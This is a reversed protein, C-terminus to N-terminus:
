AAGGVIDVVGDAVLIVAIETHQGATSAAGNRTIAAPTSDNASVTAVGAAAQRIIWHRGVAASQGAALTLTVASGSTCRIYDPYCNTGDLTVAATADTVIVLDKGFRADNGEAFQGASTGFAGAEVVGATGTKLPLGSTTGVKGDNTLNGHTHSTPTRADSLRADDGACVTGATSGTNKTAADGLGSVNAAPVSGTAITGITTISTSGAWTSLATNEVNDLAVHTKLTSANVGLAITGSSTIPSGSDVEIGDSGSVAVSTVTGAGAPTDRILSGDTDIGTVFQGASGTNRKVGGITTTTPAPLTYNNASAEIGDLKSAFASTMLGDQSATADRLKDDGGTVHSSAHPTDYDTGAVAQAVKGSAGKLLGTLTTDTATTVENPGAPGTEGQIGQIGQEGQVGQIGQEGQPGAPGTL